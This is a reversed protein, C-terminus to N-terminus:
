TKNRIRASRRKQIPNTHRKKELTNCLYLHETTDIEKIERSCSILLMSAFLIFYYLNKM